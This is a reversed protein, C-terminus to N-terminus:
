RQLTSQVAPKPDTVMAFKNMISLAIKKRCLVIDDQDFDLASGKSYLDCFMLMFMGRDNGNKQTAHGSVIFYEWKNINYEISM